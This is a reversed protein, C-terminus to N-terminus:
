ESVLKKRGVVDLMRPAIDFLNDLRCLMMRQYYYSLMHVVNHAFHGISMEFNSVIMSFLYGPPNVTLRYGPKASLCVAMFSSIPTSIGRKTHLEICM